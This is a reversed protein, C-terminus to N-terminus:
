CRAFRRSIRTVSIGSATSEDGTLRTETGTVQYYTTSAMTAYDNKLLVRQLILYNKM